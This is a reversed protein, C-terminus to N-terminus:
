LSIIVHCEGVAVGFLVYIAGSTVSLNKKFRWGGAFFFCRLCLYRFFNPCDRLIESCVSKCISYFGKGEEKFCPPFREGCYLKKINEQCKPYKKLVEQVNPPFGPDVNGALYPKKYQLEYLTKQFAASILTHNSM